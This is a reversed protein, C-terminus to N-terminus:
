RPAEGSRPVTRHVHPQEDRRYALKDPRVARFLRAAFIWSLPQDNADDVRVAHGYLVRVPIQAALESRRPRLDCLAAPGIGRALSVEAHSECATVRYRNAGPPIAFGCRRRQSAVDSSGM